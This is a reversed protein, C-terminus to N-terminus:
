AGPPDSPLTCCFRAGPSLGTDLWMRGDQPEVIKRCLALGIGTGPCARRDHLRQFIVFIRDAYEEAAVEVVEDLGRIAPQM